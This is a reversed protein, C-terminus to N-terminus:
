QRTRFAMGSFQMRSCLFGSCIRVGWELGVKITEERGPSLASSMDSAQPPPVLHGVATVASEM